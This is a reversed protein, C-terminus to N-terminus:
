LLDSFIDDPVFTEFLYSVLSFSTTTSASGLGSTVVPPKTTGLWRSFKKRKGIGHRSLWYASQEEKSPHRKTNQRLISTCIPLHAHTEFSISNTEGFYHPNNIETDIIFGKQVYIALYDCSSYPVYM